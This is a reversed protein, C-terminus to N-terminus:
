QVLRRARISRAGSPFVIGILIGDKLSLFSSIIGIEFITSLFTIFSYKKSSFVKLSSAL